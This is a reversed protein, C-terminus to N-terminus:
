ILANKHLAKVWREAFEPEKEKTITSKPNLVLYFRKLNLHHQMLLNFFSNVEEKGYLVDLESHFINKIERLLM